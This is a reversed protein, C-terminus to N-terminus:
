LPMGSAAAAQAPGPLPPKRAIFVKEGRTLGHRAVCPEVATFEDLSFGAARIRDRVDAGYFRVHDNQGFHLERDRESVAAPNEYTEAWGEVVPIMVIALGGPTLIRHMEALAARDDVHELVHSCVIADYSADPLDIREIDIVMDARGSAIDATHYAGATPHLFSAVGPEPAFHLLRRGALQEGHRDFWLRLLRHRELSGCQPCRAEPRVPFGAPGFPGHYGCLNCTREHFRHRAVRIAHRIHQLRWVVAPSLRRKLFQEVVRRM